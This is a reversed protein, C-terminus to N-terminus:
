PLTLGLSIEKQFIEFGFNQYLSVAALNHSYVELWAQSHNQKKLYELAKSVLASALGKRRYEPLVFVYDILGNSLAMVSGIIKDDVFATITTGGQWLRSM